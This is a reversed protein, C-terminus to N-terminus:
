GIKLGEPIHPQPQGQESPAFNFLGCGIHVTYETKFFHVSKNYFLYGEELLPQPINEILLCILLTIVIHFLNLIKNIEEQPNVM